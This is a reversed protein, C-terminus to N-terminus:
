QFRRPLHNAKAELLSLAGKLILELSFVRQTGLVSSQEHHRDPSPHLYLTSTLPHLLLRPLLSAEACPRPQRAPSPHTGRPTSSMTRVPPSRASCCCGGRRQSCWFSQGSTKPVLSVLGLSRHPCRPSCSCHCLLPLSAPPASLLSFPLSFSIHTLICCLKADTDMESGVAPSPTM